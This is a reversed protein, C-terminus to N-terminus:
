KAERVQVYLRKPADPYYLNLAPCLWGEMEQVDGDVEFRGKYVNGGSDERVWEIEFDADPFPGASFIMLFGDEANEIGKVAVATDGLMTEPRTTAVVLHQRGDKHVQWHMMCTNRDVKQVRYMGCNRSGTTPDNSFVLPLTIFPGGDEPWCHLIPVLDLDVDDGTLVIEQCAGKSVVKPPSKGVLV